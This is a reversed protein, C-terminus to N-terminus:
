RAAPVAQFVLLVPLFGKQGREESSSLSQLTIETTRLDLLERRM